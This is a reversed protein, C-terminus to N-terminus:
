KRQNINQHIETQLFKNKASASQEFLMASKYSSDKEYSMFMTRVRQIKINELIRIGYPKSFASNFHEAQGNVPIVCTRQQEDSNQQQNYEIIKVSNHSACESLIKEAFIFEYDIPEAQVTESAFAVFAASFILLCAFLLESM